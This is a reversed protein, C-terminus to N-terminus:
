QSGIETFVPCHKTFGLGVSRLGICNVSRVTKDELMWIWMCRGFQMMWIADDM